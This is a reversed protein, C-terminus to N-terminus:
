TGNRLAQKKYGEWSQVGLGMCCCGEDGSRGGGGGEEWLLASSFYEQIPVSSSM